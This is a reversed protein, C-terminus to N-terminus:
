PPVQFQQLNHEETQLCGMGGWYITITAGGLNSTNTFGIAPGQTSNQCSCSSGSSTQFILTGNIITDNTCTNTPVISPINTPASGVNVTITGITGGNNPIPSGGSSMELTVTYVGQSNYTIAHPGNTSSTQGNGFNWNYTVPAQLIVNNNTNSATTNTFLITSGACVNITGNIAAPISSFSTNTTQATITNLCYVFCFIFSIFAKNKM